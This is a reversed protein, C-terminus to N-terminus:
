EGPGFADEEPSCRGALNLQKALDRLATRLGEELVPHYFPHALLSSVDGDTEISWAVLHALHEARPGIMEAGIIKCDRGAYLRLLGRNAGMVRARGQRSWDIEGVVVEGPEFDNWGRGVTAINPDTFVIGM